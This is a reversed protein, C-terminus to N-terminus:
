GTNAEKVKRERYLTFLGAAVIILSGIVIRLTVLDDFALVGVLTSFVLQFYTFPQITTAEAVELAKILLFHGMVGTLCLAVMWIWTAGQPPMWFLPAICSVTLAGAIGTWFFSTEASDQRAVYRTLIGYVAFLFASSLPLLTTVDLTMERPNLVIIVGIFGTAIASWRRWSVREGLLPISMAAIMLPYCAFVTHFGVIGVTVFAFVSTIIQALLIVGRSFQLIPQKTHAVARISGHRVKCLGLVFMAFFWYRIAVVTIPNTEQAVYRSIGDQVAFIVTVLIMLIIGLRPNQVTKQPTHITM